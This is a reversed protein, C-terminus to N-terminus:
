EAASQIWRQTLLEATLPVGAGLQLGIRELRRKGQKRLQEQRIQEAPIFVPRAPVPNNLATRSLVLPQRVPKSGLMTLESQPLPLRTNASPSSQAESSLIQGGVEQRSITKEMASSVSVSVVSLLENSAESAPIRVTMEQGVLAFVITTKKHRRTSSQEKAAGLSVASVVETKRRPARTKRRMTKTGPRRPLIQSTTLLQRAMRLRELDADILSLLYAYRM